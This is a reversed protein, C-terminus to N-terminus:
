LAQRQEQLKAQALRLGEYIRKDTDSMGELGRSEFNRLRIDNLSMQTEIYYFELDGKSAFNLNMWGIISLTISIAAIVIAAAEKINM